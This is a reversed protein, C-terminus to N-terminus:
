TRPTILPSAARGIRRRVPSLGRSIMNPLQGRRRIAMVAAGSRPSPAHIRSYAHQLVVLGANVSQRSSGRRVPLVPLVPPVVLLLFVM